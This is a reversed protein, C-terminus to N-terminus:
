NRNEEYIGWLVYTRMLSTWVLSTWV